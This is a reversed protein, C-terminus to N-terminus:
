FVNSSRATTCEGGRESFHDFTNDHRPTRWNTPCQQGHGSPSTATPHGGVTYHYYNFIQARKNTV